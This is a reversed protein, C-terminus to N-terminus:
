QTYKPKKKVHSKAKIHTASTETEGIDLLDIVTKMIEPSKAGKAFKAEYGNDALINKYKEQWHPSYFESGLETALYNGRRFSLGKTVKSKGEHTNSAYHQVLGDLIASREKETGYIPNDAALVEALAHEYNQIDKNSARSALSTVFSRVNAEFTAKNEPEKKMGHQAMYAKKALGWFEKKLKENHDKDDKKIKNKVLDFEKKVIESLEENLVDSVAIEKGSIPHITKGHYKVWEDHLKTYNEKTHLEEAIKNKKVM